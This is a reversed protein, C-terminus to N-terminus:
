DVLPASRALPNRKELTMSYRSLLFCVIWFVLGAFVYSTTRVSEAMLWEPDAIGAQLVGVFDFLGLIVVITTEKIIAICLNVSAPVSIAVAQPVVILRTVRWKPLGLAYGAEIQGQPISQL